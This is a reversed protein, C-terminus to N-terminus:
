GEQEEDLERQLQEQREEPLKAVETKLEALKKEIWDRERKREARNLKKRREVM